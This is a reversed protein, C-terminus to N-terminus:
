AFPGENVCVFIICESTWIENSVLGSRIFTVSCHSAGFDGVTRFNFPCIVGAVRHDKVNHPNANTSLEVVGTVDFSRHIAIPVKITEIADM